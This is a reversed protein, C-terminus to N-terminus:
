SHEVTAKDTYFSLYGAIEKVSDLPKEYTWVANQIVGSKAAIGFYSAEGKYPCTSRQESTDLFAMAVDSRPFYIVVPYDGEQLELANSTEAIVAGGARVVWTGNAPSITIRSDTM